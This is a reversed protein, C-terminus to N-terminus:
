GIQLATARWRGRHVELRVAAARVRTGDHLVVSVEVAADSVECVHVRRIMTRRAQTPRGLTRLGLGARRSLADYLEASLWRALQAPPRIGHLAEVASRVLAAAWQGPDPLDALDVPQEETRRAARAATAPIAPGAFRVRDWPREPTTRPVPQARAPRRAATRAHGAVAPRTMTITM